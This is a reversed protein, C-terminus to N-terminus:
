SRSRRSRLMERLEGIEISKERECESNQLAMEGQATSYSVIAKMATKSDSRRAREASARRRWGATLSPASCAM